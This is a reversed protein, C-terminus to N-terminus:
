FIKLLGQTQVREHLIEDQISRAMKIKKQYKTKLKQTEQQVEHIENDLVEIQKRTQKKEEMIAQKVDLDEQCKDAIM